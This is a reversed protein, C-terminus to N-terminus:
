RRGAGPKTVNRDASDSAVICIDKFARATYISNTGAQALIAPLYETVDRFIRRMQQITPHRESGVFVNCIERFVGNVSGSHIHADTGDMDSLSKSLRRLRSECVFWAHRKGATTALAVCLGLELPMNFRPTPPWKTDLEVRSLDHISYQCNRILKLIRDLRRAGSPIELTARPVLGFASLGCIYALCLHQFQKDYPINLFVDARPKQFRPVRKAREQLM